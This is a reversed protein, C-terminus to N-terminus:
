NATADGKEEVIEADIITEGVKTCHDGWFAMEQAGLIKRQEKTLSQFHSRLADINGKEAVAQAEAILTDREPNNHDGTTANATDINVGDKAAKVREAEDEDFIGAFGFALRAAQIMTKHRLMRKPHSKWPQTDRKCESMFETVAVPHSRDKRYIKCTCSDADQQFEMGDFQSNGNIIRAWGDVGVVPVISGKSPFAYIENTFPNLGYQGAVIMLATFQADSVQGKFATEKLTAMLEEPDGAVGFKAALTGAQKVAINAETM